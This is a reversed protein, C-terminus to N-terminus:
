WEIDMELTENEIAQEFADKPEETTNTKIEDINSEDSIEYMSNFEDQTIKIKDNPM